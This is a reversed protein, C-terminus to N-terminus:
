TIQATVHATILCTCLGGESPTGHDREDSQAVARPLRPTKGALRGISLQWARGSHLMLAGALDLRLVFPVDPVGGTFLM